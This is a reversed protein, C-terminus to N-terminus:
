QQNHLRFKPLFINLPLFRSMQEVQKARNVTPIVKRCSTIESWASVTSSFPFVPQFFDSLVLLSCRLANDSM